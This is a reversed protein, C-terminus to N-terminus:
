MLEESAPPTCAGLTAVYAAIDEIESDSLPKAMSPMMTGARKGDRFDKLQTMLYQPKQGALNPINAQRSIGMPGHCATCHANFYRHGADADAARALPSVPILLVTLFSLAFSKM